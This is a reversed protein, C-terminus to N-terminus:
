SKPEKLAHMWAYEVAADFGSSQRVRKLKNRERTHANRYALCKDKSRGHKKNGGHLKQPLNAM